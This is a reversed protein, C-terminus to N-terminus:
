KSKHALAEIHIHAHTRAHTHTPPDAHPHTYPHTHAHTPTHTLAHTRPHTRSHTRAHQTHTHTHTHTRAHTHVHTRAHIRKCFDRRVHNQVKYIFVKSIINNNNNGVHATRGCVGVKDTVGLGGTVSPLLTSKLQLLLLSLEMVPSKVTVSSTVLLLTSVTTLLTLTEAEDGKVVVM